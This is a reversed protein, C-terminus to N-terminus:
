TVKKYHFLSFCFYHFECIRDYTEERKKKKRKKYSFCTIAFKFTKM